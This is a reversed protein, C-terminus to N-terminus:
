RLAGQGGAVRACRGVPSGISAACSANSEARLVLRGHLLFLGHARILVDADGHRGIVHALDLDLPWGVVVEVVSEDVLDRVSELLEITVGPAAGYDETCLALGEARARVERVARGRSRPALAALMEVLFRRPYEAGALRPDGGDMARGDSAPEAKGEGCVEADGADLRPEAGIEVPQAEM